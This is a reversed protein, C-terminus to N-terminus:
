ETSRKQLWSTIRSLVAITSVIMAASSPLNASLTSAYSIRKTKAFPLHGGGNKREGLMRQPRPFPPPTNGRGQRLRPLPPAACCATRLRSPSPSCRHAIKRVPEGLGAGDGGEGDRAEGAGGRGWPLSPPSSFSRRQNRAGASPPPSSLPAIRVVWDFNRREGRALERWLSHSTTL